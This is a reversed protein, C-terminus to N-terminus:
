ISLTTAIAAILYLNAWEELFFFAFRMGSYETNYGAVLESEAEPLDFPTRNVEAIVSIFFIFFTIFTFPSRFILWSAIGYKAQEGVIKQMELSQVLMVVALISLGVPIEYSVMQAASRLSGLLSWKNNSAWGALITGIVVLSSIALIYLIGINMDSMVYQSGFPLVAFTALTAGFVLIPAFFHLKKDALAPVIDEKLLLKVADAATQLWGHFGGVYMPGVRDQMHASVKREMYVGVLALVACVTVLVVAGLSIFIINLVVEPLNALFTQGNALYAILERM